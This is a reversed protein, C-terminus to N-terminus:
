FKVVRKQFYEHVARIFGHKVAYSYVTHESRRWETYNKYKSANKICDESSRNLRGPGQRYMTHLTCQQLWGKKYAYMYGACDGEKWAEATIFRKASELCSELTHNKSYGPPMHIACQDRIGYEGAMLYAASDGKRWSSRTAYNKASVMCLELVEEVTREKYRKGM